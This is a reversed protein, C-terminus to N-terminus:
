SLLNKPCQKGQVAVMLNRNTFKAGKRAQWSSQEHSSALTSCCQAGPPCSICSVVMGRGWLGLCLMQLPSGSRAPHLALKASYSCTPAYELLKPLLWPTEPFSSACHVVSVLFWVGSPFAIGDGPQGLLM